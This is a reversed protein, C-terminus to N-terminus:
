WAMSLLQPETLDRLPSGALGARELVQGRASAPLVRLWDAIAASLAHPALQGMLHLRSFGGDPYVDVRVACVESSEGIPFRNHADPAIPQDPLLLRWPDGDDERASVRVKGPANGLFYGTDIDIFSLRAPGALTVVVYDNGATRRRATEWGDAMTAAVGPYLLHRADSYFMDSCEAIDGGHHIAALDIRDGLIRPDPVATGRVRLRAVGGDPFINLRVHTFAQSSSVRYANATGGRAASNPVVPVWDARLLADADPSGELWTADVSVEPPYNGLFFATDVTVERIVGPVGLAVIAWDYGASRRRRTEWGDYIKGHPGFATPDHVPPAPQVLAECAAFFEDSVARVSGGLARSALDLDSRKM